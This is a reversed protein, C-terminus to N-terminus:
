KNFILINEIFLDNNSGIILAVFNLNSKIKIKRINKNNNKSENEGFYSNMWHNM